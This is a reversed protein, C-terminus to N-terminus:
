NQTSLLKRITKKIATRLEVNFWVFIMLDSIPNFGALALFLKFESDSVKQFNAFIRLIAIIVCPLWLVALTIVCGFCSYFARAERKRTFTKDYKISSNLLISNKPASSTSASKTSASKTSASNTSASNILASNKSASNTSASNKPASNTPSRSNPTTSNTSTSNTLPTLYKSTQNRPSTLNKITSRANYSIHSQSRIRERQERIIAYVIFNLVLLIVITVLIIVVISLMQEPKYPLKEQKEKESMLYWILHILGALPSAFMFVIHIRNWAPNNYWFPYRILVLRDVSLVLLAALGYVIGSFVYGRVPSTTFLGCFHSLGALLHGNCLNLLLQNSKKERLDKFNVIFAIVIAYIIGIFLGITSNVINGTSEKSLDM